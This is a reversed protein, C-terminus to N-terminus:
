IFNDNQIRTQYRKQIRTQYRKQIRALVRDAIKSGHKERLYRMRVTSVRGFREKDKIIVEECELDAQYERLKQMTENDFSGDNETIKRNDLRKFWM